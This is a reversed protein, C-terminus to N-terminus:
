TKWPPFRRELQKCNSLNIIIILFCKFEKISHSRKLTKSQFDRSSCKSMKHPRKLTLNYNLDTNQPGGAEDKKWARKKKKDPWLSEHLRTDESASRSPNPKKEGGEVFSWSHKQPLYNNIKKKKYKHNSHGSKLANKAHNFSPWHRGECYFRKVFEWFVFSPRSLELTLKQNHVKQDEHNLFRHLTVKWNM